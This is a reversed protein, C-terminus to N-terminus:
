VESMLKGATMWHTRPYEEIVVECSELKANATEILARTIAQALRQKQDDSRGELMQVKVFPM